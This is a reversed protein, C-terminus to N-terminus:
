NAAVVSDGFSVLHYRNKVSDFYGLIYEKGRLFMTDVTKTSGFAYYEKGINSKFEKIRDLITEPMLMGNLPEFTTPDLLSKLEVTRVGSYSPGSGMITYGGFTVVLARPIRYVFILGGDEACKRLFPRSRTPEDGNAYHLEDDDTITNERVLRDNELDVIRFVMRKICYIVQYLYGGRLYSNSTVSETCETKGQAYSRIEEKLTKRDIAVLTTESPDSDITLVLRDPYCYLKQTNSALRLTPPFDLDMPEATDKRFIATLNKSFTGSKGSPVDYTKMEFSADARFAYLKLATKETSFIYFNEDASIAGAFRENAVPLKLDESTVQKGTLDFHVAAFSNHYQSSFFLTVLNGSRCHGLLKPLESKSPREGDLSDVLTLNKDFLRAKISRNDLLFLLTSNNEPVEVTFAEPDNKLTVGFAALVEQGSTPFVISVCLLLLSSSLLNFKNM